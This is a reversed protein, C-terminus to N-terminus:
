NGFVITEEHHGYLPKTEQCTKVEKNGEDEVDDNDDIM